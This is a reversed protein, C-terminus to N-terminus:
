RYDAISRNRSDDNAKEIAGLIKDLINRNLMHGNYFVTEISKIHKMDELPNKNLLILNADYNKTIRGANAKIVQNPISTASALTQANTLVIHEMQM